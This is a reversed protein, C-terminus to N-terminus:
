LTEWFYCASRQVGPNGVYIRVRPAGSRWSGTLGAAADETVRAVLPITGGWRRPVEELVWPSRGSGPRHPVQDQFGEGLM